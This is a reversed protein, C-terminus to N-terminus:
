KTSRCKLRTANLATEAIDTDTRENNFPLNVILEEAIAKVGVVRGAVKEAAHKEFYSPV